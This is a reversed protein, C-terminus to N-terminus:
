EKEPREINKIRDRQKGVDIPRRAQNKVNKVDLGLKRHQNTEHTIVRYRQNGLDFRTGEPFHSEMFERANKRAKEFLSDVHNLDITTQNDMSETEKFHNVAKNTIEEDLGHQITTQLLNKKQPQLMDSDDDLILYKSIKHNEWGTWADIEEGRTATARELVPTKGVVPANLGNRQLAPICDDFERWSSSIVIYAGTERCIKNLHQIAVLDLDCDPFKLRTRRKKYRFSQLYKRSNLVGDIDLFIIKM